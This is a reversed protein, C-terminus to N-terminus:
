ILAAKVETLFAHAKELATSIQDKDPSNRIFTVLDTVPVPDEALLQDLIPADLVRELLDILQGATIAQPRPAGQERTRQAQGLANSGVRM